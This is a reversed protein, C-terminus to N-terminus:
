GCSTSQSGDTISPNLYTDTGGPGGGNVWAPSAICQQYILAGLSISLGAGGCRSSRRHRRLLDKGDRRARQRLLLALEIELVAIQQQLFEKGVAPDLAQAGGGLLHHLLAAADGPGIRDPVEVLAVASLARAQAPQGAHVVMM